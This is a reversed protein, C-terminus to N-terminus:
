PAIRSAVASSSISGSLIRAHLRILRVDADQQQAPHDGPQARDTRYRRGDDLAQERRVERVQLVQVDADVLRTPVSASVRQGSHPACNVTSTPPTAHGICM